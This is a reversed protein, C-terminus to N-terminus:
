RLKESSSRWNNKRRRVPCFRTEGIAEIGHLSGRMTVFHNEFISKYAHEFSSHWRRARRGRHVVVSPRTEKKVPIGSASPLM